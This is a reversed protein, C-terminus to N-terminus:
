AVATSKPWRIASWAIFVMCIGEIAAFFIYHPYASGGAIVFVITVVCAAINVIRNAGRRLIRSLFIMVIPIELLVAFVLLLGQTPHIGGMDGALIKQLGGPVIFSLIDAFIMNFLVVIWLTSIRTGIGNTM